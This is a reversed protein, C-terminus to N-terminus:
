QSCYSIQSQSFGHLPSVNVIVMWSSHQTSQGTLKVELGLSSYFNMLQDRISQLRYHVDAMERDLIVTNWNETVMVEKINNLHQYKQVLYGYEYTVDGISIFTMRLRRMMSFRDMM